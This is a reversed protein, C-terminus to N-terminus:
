SWYSKYLRDFESRIAEDISGAPARDVFDREVGVDILGKRPGIKIIALLTDHLLSYDAVALAIRAKIGYCERTFRGNTQALSIARNVTELMREKPAGSYLYYNSAKVWSREDNPFEATLEEVAIGADRDRSNMRLENILISYLVRREEHARSDALRMRIDGSIDQYHKAKRLGEAWETPDNPGKENPHESM